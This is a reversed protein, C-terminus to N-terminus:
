NFKIFFLPLSPLQILWNTKKNAGQFTHKRSTQGLQTANLTEMQNRLLCLGHFPIKPKSRQIFSVFVREKVQALKRAIKSEQEENKAGSSCLFAQQAPQTFDLWLACFRGYIPPVWPWPSYLEFGSLCLMTLRIYKLIQVTSLPM